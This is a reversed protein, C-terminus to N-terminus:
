PAPRVEAGSRLEFADALGALEFVRAIEPRLGAIVIRASGHAAVMARRLRVFCALASTDLFRVSRLDLIVTAEAVLPALLTSLEDKRAYDLEGGLRLRALPVPEDALRGRDYV